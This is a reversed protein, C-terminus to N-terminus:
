VYGMSNKLRLPMSYTKVELDRKTRGEAGEAGKHHIKEEFYSDFRLNLSEEEEGERYIREEFYSSSFPANKRTNKRELYPYISLSMM